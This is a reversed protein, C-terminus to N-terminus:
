IGIVTSSHPTCKPQGAIWLQCQCRSAFTREHPQTRGDWLVPTAAMGFHPTSAARCGRCCNSLELKVLEFRKTYPFQMAPEKAIDFTGAVAVADISMIATGTDSM